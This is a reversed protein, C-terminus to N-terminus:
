SSARRISTVARLTEDAARGWSYTSLVARANARLRARLAADHMASELARATGELDGREVFLAADGCTERAVPTDLMVVPVGASLAELPTFGFGEYESLFVFVAARAYLDNLVSSDVYSYLTVREGVGADRAMADLDQHPVTRNEGAIALRAEPRRRALLAFARILDPVGRRNFISGAFLVLPEARATTPAVATTVGPYVVRVKAPAIALHTVIEQKSFETDTLVIAAARASAGTLWRRRLGERRTFWEPHAAFSVDHVTLAIPVRLRLPASYAPAFFVDLSDHEAARRLATQEWLTGGSGEIPRLGLRESTTMDPPPLTPGYLLFEHAAAEPMVKWERLLADLYRGVGTPRGALERADIGIRM